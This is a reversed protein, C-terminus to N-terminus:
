RKYQRKGGTLSTPTKLGINKNPKLEIRGKGVM